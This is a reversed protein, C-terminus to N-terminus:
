KNPKDYTLIRYWWDFDYKDSGEYGLDPITAGNNVDFIGSVYYGNCTGNWGMNCHLLTRSGGVIGNTSVYNQKMYGDIVWAHGNVLGSIAAIFVPNGKKISELILAGDYGTTKVVETYGLGEMCKKAAAPTAFAYEKHYDVQCKDGLFRMFHALMNEFEEVAEDDEDDPISKMIDYNCRVGNYTVDPYEHYALIQGVAVPVCGVPARKKKTTGRTPCLNNFPEGQGWKTSMMELVLEDTVWRYTVPLDSGDAHEGLPGNACGEEFIKLEHLVYSCTLEAVIRGPKEPESPNCAAVYYDDDIPNYFKFETTDQDDTYIIEMSNEFLFDELRLEGKEAVILVPEGIRKDASLISFGGDNFNVVHLLTDASKLNKLDLAKTRQTKVSFSSCISYAKGKTNPYIDAMLDDLSVLATKLSISYDYESLEEQSIVPLDAICSCCFLFCAIIPVCTQFLQKM